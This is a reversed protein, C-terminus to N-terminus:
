PLIEFEKLYGIPVSENEEEGAKIFEYKMSEIFSKITYTHVHPQNMLVTLEELTIRDLYGKSWLWKWRLIDSSTEFGYINTLVSWIGYLKQTEKINVLIDNNADGTHKLIENSYSLFEFFINLISVDRSMGRGDFFTISHRYFYIANLLKSNGLSIKKEIQKILGDSNIPIEVDHDKRFDTETNVFLLIDNLFPYIFEQYTKKADKKRERRLTFWHSLMQAGIAALLAISATIIAPILTTDVLIM